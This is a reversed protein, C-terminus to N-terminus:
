IAVNSEEPLYKLLDRYGYLTLLERLIETSDDSINPLISPMKYKAMVSSINKMEGFVLKNVAVVIDKSGRHSYYEDLINKTNKAFEKEESFAKGELIDRYYFHNFLLDLYSHEFTYTQDKVLSLTEDLKLCMNQYDDPTELITKIDTKSLEPGVKKFMEYFCELWFIPNEVPNSKSTRARNIAAIELQEDVGSHLKRFNEKEHETRIRSLRWGYEVLLEVNKRALEEMIERFREESMEFNLKGKFCTSNCENPLKKILIENKFGTAHNFIERAHSKLLEIDTNMCTLFFSKSLRLVIFFYVYRQSKRGIRLKHLILNITKEFKNLQIKEFHDLIKHLNTIKVIDWKNARTTKKSPPILEVCGDKLLDNLHRNVTAQTIGEYYTQINKRIDPETVPGASMLILELIKTKVEGVAYHYKKAEAM